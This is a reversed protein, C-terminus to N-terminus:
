VPIFLQMGPYIYNPNYLGNYSSIAQVTTGYRRAIGALTDGYRVYYTYVQPVRPIFLPQGVYIHNINWIGNAQAIAYVNSGFWRAISSLSDGPRVTYYQGGYSPPQYPPTYPPYYTGSPITLHQGVFIYNPNYIGNASAIASITTGYRAAIMSLTEGPQVVHIVGSALAAGTTVAFILFVSVLILLRRM